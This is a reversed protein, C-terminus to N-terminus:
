TGSFAYSVGKEPVKMYIVGDRGAKKELEKFSDSAGILKTQSSNLAVWKGAHEGKIVKNLDYNRNKM